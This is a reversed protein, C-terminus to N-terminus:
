TVKETYFYIHEWLNNIRNAKDIIRCSRTYSGIRQLETQNEPWTWRNGSADLMIKEALSRTFPVAYKFRQSHKSGLFVWSGNWGLADKSWYEPNEKAILMHGNNQIREFHEDFRRSHVLEKLEYEDYIYEIDLFGILYFGKENTFYGDRWMVLRALFLLRDGKELDKLNSARPSTNPFDGYTFYNFEPDNHTRMNLYKKPIFDSFKRDNPSQLESYRPYVSFEVICEKCNGLETPCDSLPCTPIPVFDFTGDDYIPSRLTRHSANVGVNIIGIKM